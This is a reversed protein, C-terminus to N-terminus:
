STYQMSKEANMGRIQMYMAIHDYCMQINHKLNWYPLKPPMTVIERKEKSLHISNFFNRYWKTHILVEM